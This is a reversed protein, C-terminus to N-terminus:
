QPGQRRELAIALAKSLIATAGGLAAMFPATLLVPGAFMAYLPEDSRSLWVAAAVSCAGGILLGVLM